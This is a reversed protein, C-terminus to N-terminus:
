LGFRIALPVVDKQTQTGRPAGIIGFRVYGNKSKQCLQLAGRDWTAPVHRQHAKCVKANSKNGKFLLKDRCIKNLIDGTKGRYM